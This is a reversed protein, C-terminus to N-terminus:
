LTKDNVLFFMRFVFVNRHRRKLLKVEDANVFGALKACSLGM